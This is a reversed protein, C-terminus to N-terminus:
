KENNKSYSLRLNCKVNFTIRLFLALFLFTPAYSSVTCNRWFSAIQARQPHRPNHHLNLPERKEHDSPRSKMDSMFESYKKESPYFPSKPKLSPQVITRIEM